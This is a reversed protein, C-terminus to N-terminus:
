IPNRSGPFKGEAQLRRGYPPPPAQHERFRSYSNLLAARQRHHRHGIRPTRWLSRRSDARRALISPTRVGLLPHSLDSRRLLSPIRRCWGRAAQRVLSDPRGTPPRCFLPVGQCARDNAIYYDIVPSKGAAPFTRVRDVVREARVTWLAMDSSCGDWGAVPPSAGASLSRCGASGLPMESSWSLSAKASISRVPGSGGGAVSLAAATEGLRSDASACCRVVPPDLIQAVDRGAVQEFGHEEHSAGGAFRQASVSNHGENPAHRGGLDVFEHPLEIFDVRPVSRRVLDDVMPGSVFENQPGLELRDACPEVSPSSLCSQGLGCDLDQRDNGVPPRHGGVLDALEARRCAPPTSDCSTRRWSSRM